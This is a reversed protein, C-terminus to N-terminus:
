LSNINSIRIGFGLVRVALQHFRNGHNKFYYIGTPFSIDFLTIDGWGDEERNSWVPRPYEFTIKM